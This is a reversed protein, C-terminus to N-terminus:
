VYLRRPDTAERHGTCAARPAQFGEAKKVHNQALSLSGRARSAEGARERSEHPCPAQHCEGALPGSCWASTEKEKEAPKM